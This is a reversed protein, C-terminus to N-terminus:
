CGNGSFSNWLCVYVQPEKVVVYLVAFSNHSIHLGLIHTIESECSTAYHIMSILTASDRKFFLTVTYLNGIIFLNACTGRTTLLVPGWLQSSLGVGCGCTGTSGTRSVFAWSVLISERLLSFSPSTTVVIGTFSM